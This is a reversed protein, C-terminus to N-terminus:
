MIIYPERFIVIYMHIWVKIHLKINFRPWILGCFSVGVNCPCCFLSRPPTGSTFLGFLRLLIHEKTKKSMHYTESFRFGWRKWDCQACIKCNLSFCFCNFFLALVLNSNLTCLKFIESVYHLTIISDKAQSILPTMELNNCSSPIGDLGEISSSVDSFFVNWNM